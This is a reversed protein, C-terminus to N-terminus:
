RVTLSIATLFLNLFIVMGRHPGRDWRIQVGGLFGEEQNGKTGLSWSIYMHPQSSVSWPEQRPHIGGTGSSRMEGKAPGKNYDDLGAVSIKGM